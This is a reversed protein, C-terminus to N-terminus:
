QTIFGIFLGALLLIVALTIRASYLTKADFERGSFIWVMTAAVVAGIGGGLAAHDMNALAAASALICLRPADILQRAFLVLGIAGLSRTPERPHALNVLVALEIAALLLAGDVIMQRAEGVFQGSVAAGLAAAILTALLATAASVVLLGPSRGLSGSLMSITLHARGGFSTLLCAALAILAADM